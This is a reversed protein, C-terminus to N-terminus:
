RRSGRERCSIKIVGTKTRNSRGKQPAAIRATTRHDMTRSGRHGSRSCSRRFAAYRQTAAFPHPVRAIHATNHNADDSRCNRRGSDQYGYMYARPHVTDGHIRDHLFPINGSIRLSHIRRSIHRAGSALRETDLRTRRAIANRRYSLHLRAYRGYLEIRRPIQRYRSRRGHLGATRSLMPDLSQFRLHTEM